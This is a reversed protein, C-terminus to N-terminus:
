TTPPPPPSAVHPSTSKSLTHRYARYTMAHNTGKSLRLALLERGDADVESLTAKGPGSGWAILWNGNALVSVAGGFVARAGEREYHRTFLAGAGSLRYQVVRSTPREGDLCQGNDFMLVQGPATELVSHQACFGGHPDDTIQHWTRDFSPRRDDYPDRAAPDSGGLQWLVRGSPREIKLVQSCGRFSALINGENDLHLGNLKSYEEPFRRRAACDSLKIHDWANWRFVERGEPTVEQIFDDHTAQTSSPAPEGERGPYRSLDRVSPNNTLFLHNGEPTILFEHMRAPAIGGVTNVRAVPELQADLLVVDGGSNPRAENYSFLGAHEHWRFNHAPPDSRRTFRPVGHDDLMALYSVIGSEGAGSYYPTLLLLGPATGPQKALVEVDPFDPPVCHIVYQARTNTNPAELALVLDEDAELTVRRNTLPAPTPQGNLALRHHDSQPAASIHLQQPQECRLAYHFVQPDFQPTLTGAGTVHMAALLPPQAALATHACCLTAAVATLVRLLARRLFADKHQTRAM